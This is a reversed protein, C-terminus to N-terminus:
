SYMHTAVFQWLGPRALAWDLPPWWSARRPKAFRLLGASLPVRCRLFDVSNHQRWQIWGCKGFSTGAASAARKSPRRRTKCNESAVIGSTDAAEKRGSPNRFSGPAGSAPRPAQANSSMKNIKWYKAIIGYPNADALSELERSPKLRTLCGRRLNAVQGVTKPFQGASRVTSRRTVPPSLRRLLCFGAKAFGWVCVSKGFSAMM